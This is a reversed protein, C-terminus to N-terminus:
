IVLGLLVPRMEEEFVLSALAERGAGFASRIALERKRAGVSFAALAYVGVLSLVIGVEAFTALLRAILRRPGLSMQVIDDLTRMSSTAVGPEVAHVANRISPELERPDDRTRVVWYMRASVQAAQTPPMQAVPVYLDATPERDLTFQK